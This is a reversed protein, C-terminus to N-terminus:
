DVQLIIDDDEDSEDGRTTISGTSGMTVDAVRKLKVGVYVGDRCKGFVKEIAEHMEKINGNKNGYNSVLWDRYQEGVEAKPLCRNADRCIRDAIFEAIIDQKQRYKDSSAMVVDCDVVRGDTEFARKVLMSALTERWAPFKESITPDLKFQYPKEPDGEVPNETFLSVFDVVRIRRWTGYDTSAIPLLVNSLVVLKFQPKFSVVQPMYPARAQVIDGGVLSKLVGENIRESKSPEVICALRVSKLAVLEPALGGIKGRQQTILAPSVDAKYDGLVEGMLDMLKSKGNRGIGTYMNVTQADCTGLMCSTLHDFMYQHVDPNPFLQRLFAKVEEEHVPSPNEVYDIRTSKSLYDEPVGKRFVKTRFDVVGNNFCLLYPDNDLKEFFHPNYFLEKAETMINKKDHTSSLRDCITIILEARKKLVKTKEDEPDMAMMQRHLKAVKRTYIDRLQESIARRLSTGSDNETWRHNKFRYWMNQKVSCCVYEDKYLHYLVTAIDFDGSGRAGRDANSMHTRELTLDIFHEISSFRVKEHEEANDQRLWYMISRKTLGRMTRGEMACWKELLDPIDSCSFTSSQASFALWVPFLRPDQNRLAWGVRIWKNFSGAEYYAPPLAMTYAYTERLEYDTASLSDLFRQVAADLDEKTHIATIDFDVDSARFPLLEEGRSSSSRLTTSSSSRSVTSGKGQVFNEYESVFTSAFFLTPHGEYRVSLQPFAEATHFNATPVKDFVLENDTTDLRVNFAHTLKYAAHKPKRSGYLQWGTHGKTIGEDFVESWPNTVPLDKWLDGIKAMVRERLMLQVPREVQLGIIMHIGDKTCKKEPVRNVDDKEFVFVPIRTSGDMQFMAKLEDLYLCVMDLVHESTHQRSEVDAAYRLDIDVLIPAATELQKETLYEKNETKVIADFYLRLFTAYEEKPIHYSGGSLNSDKCGIRTNTIEQGSEGKKIFHERLFRTYTDM